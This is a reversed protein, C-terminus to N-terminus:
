SRIGNRIGMANLLDAKALEYNFRAEILELEATNLNDEIDEFELFSINGQKYEIGALIAREEAVDINAEALAFRSKALVTKFYAAKVEITITELLSKQELLLSNLTIDNEKLKLYLPFGASIPFSISLVTNADSTTPTLTKGALNYGASASVAPLYESQAVIRDLKNIEISVEKQKIDPRNKLAVEIAKDAELKIEDGTYQEDVIIMEGQGKGMEKKLQLLSMEVNNKAALLDYESKKTYYEAQDLNTKKENGIQYLLSVIACNEKRRKLETERTILLANNQLLQFYLKKINLILTNQQQIYQLEALKYNNQAKKITATNKGSSFLTQTIKLGTDYGSSDGGTNQVFSYGIMQLYNLNLNVQPYVIYVTSKLQVNKLEKDYALASLVANNKLATNICDELVMKTESYSPFTYITFILFLLTLLSITKWLEYKM